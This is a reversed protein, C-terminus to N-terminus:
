TGIEQRFIQVHTGIEMAVPRRQGVRVKTAGYATQREVVREVAQRLKVDGGDLRQCYSARSKNSSTRVVDSRQRPTRAQLCPQPTPPLIDSESRELIESM